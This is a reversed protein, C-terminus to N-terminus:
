EDDRLALVLQSVPSKTGRNSINIRYTGEDPAEVLAGVVGDREEFALVGVVKRREADVLTGTLEERSAGNIPIWTQEGAVLLDPATFGLHGGAPERDIGQERLATASLTHHPQGSPFLNPRLIYGNNGPRAPAYRTLYRKAEAFTEAFNALSGHKQALFTSGQDHDAGSLLPVTTDGMLEVRKPDGNPEFVVKGDKLEYTHFFGEAVGDRIRISTITPQYNGVYAIHTGSTKLYYKRLKRQAELATKALEANGDVSKVDAATLRKFDSGTDIARYLPLLDYVGPLTRAMGRVRERPLWFPLSTTGNAITLLAEAAGAFPTGLTLVPGVVVDAILPALQPSGVLARYVQGGMSHAIVVLKPERNAKVAAKKVADRKIWWAFHDAMAKGLLGANYTVSLRWDYPFEAIAGPLTVTQLSKILRAYPDFGGLFFSAVPGLKLLGAPKIRTSTGDREEDTVKLLNWVDDNKIADRYWAIRLGWILKGTEVVELASGMIGPVIIVADPSLPVPIPKSM